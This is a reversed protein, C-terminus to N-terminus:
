PIYAEGLFEQVPVGAKRMDNMVSLLVTIIMGARFPTSVIEELIGDADDEDLAQWILKVDELAGNYADRYEELSMKRRTLTAM